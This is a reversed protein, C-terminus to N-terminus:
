AVNLGLAPINTLTAWSLTPAPDNWTGNTITSSSRRTGYRTGSGSDGFSIFGNFGLANHGQMNTDSSLSMAIYYKGRELTLNSSFSVIARQSHTPNVVSCSSNAVLSSPDGNSNNYIALYVTQASTSRMSHIKIGSFTLRKPVFIPCYYAISNSYGSNTTTYDEAPELVAGSPISDFYFSYLDKSFTGDGLLFDGQQGAAPQPVLGATGAASSTAGVMNSASAGGGGFFPM